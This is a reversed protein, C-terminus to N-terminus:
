LSAKTSNEKNLNPTPSLLLQFTRKKRSRLSQSNSVQSSKLQIKSDLIGKFSLPSRILHLQLSIPIKVNTRTIVLQEEEMTKGQFPIQFTLAGRRTEKKPQVTAHFLIRITIIQSKPTEIKNIPANHTTTYLNHIM